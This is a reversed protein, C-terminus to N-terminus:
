IETEMKMPIMAFFSTSIKKDFKIMNNPCYYMVVPEYM